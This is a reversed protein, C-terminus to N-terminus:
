AEAGGCGEVVEADDGEMGQLGDGGIVDGATAAEEFDGLSLEGSSWGLGWGM